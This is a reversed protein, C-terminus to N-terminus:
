ETRGVVIGMFRSNYLGADNLVTVTITHKGTDGGYYIPNGECYKEIGGGSMRWRYHLKRNGPNRVELFLRASEGLKIKKKKCSLRTIKPIEKLQSYCKVPEQKLLHKDLIRAMTLLKERTSGGAQMMFLVNFRIFDINSFNRKQKGPITLCIHGIGPESKRDPPRRTTNAYRTILYRKTEEMTPSVVMNVELQDSGSVWYQHIRLYTSRQITELSYNDEAWVKRMHGLQPLIKESVAAGQIVKGTEKHWKFFRYKEKVLRLREKFAEGEQYCRTQCKRVIGFKYTSPYAPTGCKVVRAKYDDWPINTMWCISLQPKEFTFYASNYVTVPLLTADFINDGISAFAHSDFQIDTSVKKTGVLIVPYLLGFKKGRSYSYESNRYILGGGVINSFTVLAKGMDCCNVGKVVPWNNLFNTLEFNECTSATYGPGYQYCGCIGTFLCKTIKSAAGEPTTEGDAWKCSYDLVEAWPKTQNCTAWPSQPEDLVIYIRNITNGICVKPSEKEELDRCFWQWEQNFSKIEKPTKGSVHFYVPDSIGEKNFHVVRASIDGLYGPSGSHAGIKARTIGQAASFIAKVTIRKNRTYAAPYPKQGNKWEPIHVPETENMKINLADSCSCGTNYNFYLEELRVPAKSFEGPSKKEAPYGSSITPWASGSLLLLIFLGKIKLKM